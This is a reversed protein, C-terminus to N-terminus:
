EKFSEVTYVFLKTKPNKLADEGLGAKEHLLSNLFEKKTKFHEWVQPLYTGSRAGQVVYVGHLKEKIEDPTKISRLPSLISIEINIDEIEDETLEPFRSDEFAAAVAFKNVEDALLNKAQLDGICGRLAGDKNLTVFVAAPVNFVPIESLELKEITKYQLYYTISQRAIRLLKERQSELLKFHNEPNDSKVFAGAGYGVVASTDAGRTSGSNTYDVLKFDNAGQQMVCYLGAIIATEGCCTTELGPERRSLILKNALEFYSPDQYQLAIDLAKLTSLDSKKAIDSPPYHAMDSSIIVMADNENAIKGVQAGVERLVKLNRNNLLIPVIKVDPNIVQLFPLQVEISHEEEHANDNFEFLPSSDKLKQTLQKDVCVNDLPTAFSCGSYLAAGRISHRHSIALIIATKFKKNKILSFSKGATAGSYVYGAHPVLIGFINESIPKVECSLFSEVMSKLQMPDDPYFSGAVAPRRVKLSITKAM